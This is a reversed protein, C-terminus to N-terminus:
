SSAKYSTPLVVSQDVRKAWIKYYKVSENFFFTSHVYVMRFKVQRFVFKPQSSNLEFKVQCSCYFIPLQLIMYQVLVINSFQM